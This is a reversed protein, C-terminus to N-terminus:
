ILISIATSNDKAEYKCKDSIFQVTEQWKREKGLFKDVISDGPFAELVGDSCLIFVDDDQTHPIFQYSFDPIEEGDNAQFARTIVNRKPHTDMEKKTAIVGADFLEQVLSHDKTRWYQNESKKIHYCRSDGVHLIHWSADKQIAIVATSGMNTSISNDAKAENLAQAICASLL